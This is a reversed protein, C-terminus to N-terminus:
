ASGNDKETLQRRFYALKDPNAVDYFRRIRGNEIEISTVHLDGNVLIVFGPLGNIEVVQMQRFQDAYKQSFGIFFRAVRDVGHVPKRAARVRGGGDNYATVDDSLLSRLGHLDGRAIAQQFETFLRVHEERSPAFRSRDTFLHKQARAHIQRCNAAELGLIAAIEEYSLDFAERLVFVGREAASLRELLRLLGISVLDRQELADLPGLAITATPDQTMLPEPLWPGVYEERRAQASKLHDLALRTVTTVLFAQADRVTERDVSAWRLFAEQVVEEAEGTRGLLRYALGNLRTRHEEFVQAAQEARTVDM